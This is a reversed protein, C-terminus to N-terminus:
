VASDQNEFIISKEKEYYDTLISIITKNVLLLKNKFFYIMFFYYSDIM